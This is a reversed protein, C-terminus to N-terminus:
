LKLKNLEEDIMELITIADCAFSLHGAGCRTSINPQELNIRILKAGFQHVSNEMEHRVTPVAGGAGIEIAVVKSHNNAIEEKWTSYRSAQKDYRDGIFGWDSFMLVNPRGLAGCSPCKPLPPYACNNLPNITLDLSPLPHIGSSCELSKPQSCQLFRVSGHVEIIRDPPFKSEYWHGDINSTFSFGGLKKSASWKKLIDYGKHPMNSTYASHRYHWFSWGFNASSTCAQDNNDIKQKDLVPYGFWRPNSMSTFEIGLKKLPPWVGANAGRFTGLGSSVGMGAGTGILIADADAILKAAQAAAARSPAAAVGSM